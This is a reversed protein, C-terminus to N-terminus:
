ELWESFFGLGLISKLTAGVRRACILVRPTMRPLRHMGSMAMGGMGYMDGGNAPYLNAKSVDDAWLRIEEIM